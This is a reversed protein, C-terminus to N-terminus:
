EVTVTLCQDAGPVIESKIQCHQAGASVDLTYQGAALNELRFMGSELTTASQGSCKVVAGRCPRGRSDVVQGYFSGLTAPRPQNLIARGLNVRGSGFQRSWGGGPAGGVNDATQELRQVAQGPSLGPEIALLAAMMGAVVPCAMSTGNLSDYGERFGLRTLECPYTPLTSLIAVGPAGVSVSMGFNSFYAMRDQPDTASVAVVHNCGAPYGPDSSGANGAAAVVVVKKQWAYNIADQLAQSYMPGGLSMSEVRCGQDAAWTISRAIWGVEGYGRSTMVKAPVLKFANCGVGAIGLGNNTAADAIGACHTGHGNDDLPTKKGTVFSKGIVNGKNDRAIMDKLDPHTGDVGTDIIALRLDSHVNQLREWAEPAHIARLYWQDIAGDRTSDYPEDYYPDNPTLLLRYIYDPEAFVVGPDQRLAQVVDDVKIGPWFKLTIDHTDSDIAETTEQVRENPFATQAGFTHITATRLASNVRDQDLRGDSFRVLVKGPVCDAPLSLGSLEAPRAQLPSAPSPSRVPAPQLFAWMMGAMAAGALVAASRSVRQGSTGPPLAFVLALSLPGISWAPPTVRWLLVCAVVIFALLLLMRPISAGGSIVENM